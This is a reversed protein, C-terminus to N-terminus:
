KKPPGARMRKLRDVYYSLPTQEFRNALALARESARVADDWRDLLAYARALRDWAGPSQPDIDVGRQVLALGEEKKGAGITEEGFDAYVEGPVPLTTGVTKSVDAYHKEAYALGKPMLDPHYRYGAYLQRLGDITALLSMSRHTEDPFARESWRLSKPAKHKLVGVLANYDALPRDFDDARAVYVFANTAKSAAFSKELAHQPWNGDWDLSPALALYGRFLSPEDALCYLAFLGGLSHGHLVRFDNTRLDRDIAPILETALFRKFNPAGGGGVWAEWDTPTFDRMRSTNDIGVVILEPIEGSDSLADVTATVSAFQSPADLLYLVPYRRNEAWRYSPPLHVRYSREESLVTSYLRHADGIVIPDAAVARGVVVVFLLLTIFRAIM